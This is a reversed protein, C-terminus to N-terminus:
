MLAKEAALKTPDRQHCVGDARERGTCGAGVVELACNM